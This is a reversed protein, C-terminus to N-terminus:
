LNKSQTEARIKACKNAILAAFAGAGFGNDINMVALGPSCSQLMSILAGVGKEGLGAGTSVPVGIVPIDVLGAVLTPLAGEMGACVILADAQLMEKLPEILRHVGAVGTDHASLIRCGMLQAALQAEAAVGMDSTGATLIGVTGQDSSFTYDAKRVVVTKGKPGPHIEVFYNHDKEFEKLLKVTKLPTRTVLAIQHEKVLREVIKKTSKPEKYEAHVAEPIGTRRQRDSDLRAFEGVRELHNLKLANEAQDLTIEGRLLRELTSRSNNM